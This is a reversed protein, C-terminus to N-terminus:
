DLGAAAAPQPAAAPGAATRGYSRRFGEDIHQLFAAGPELDALSGYSPTCPASNYVTRLSSMAADFDAVSCQVRAALRQPLCLQLM